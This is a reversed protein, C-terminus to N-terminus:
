FIYIIYSFENDFNHVNGFNDMGIINRVFEKDNIKKDKNKIINFYKEKEFLFEDIGFDSEISMYINTFDVFKEKFYFVIINKNGKGGTIIVNNDNIPFCIHGSLGSINGNCRYNLKNWKIPNNINIFEITNNNEGFFVCLYDGIIAYASNIRDSLLTPYRSLIGKEIEFTECDRTEGGIFILIDNKPTIVIGGNKHNYKLNKILLIMNKSQSYYFLHNYNEGTLVFFGALTNLILSGKQNNKYENIFSTWGKINATNIEFFKKTKIDYTILKEKNDDISYLFSGNRPTNLIEINNEISLINKHKILINDFSKTNQHKILSKQPQDEKFTYDKRFYKYLEKQPSIQTNNNKQVRLINKSSKNKDLVPNNDKRNVKIAKIKFSITKKSNQIKKKLKENEKQLDKIKNLLEKQENFKNIYDNNEQKLKKNNSIINNKEVMLNNKIENSKNSFENIQNELKIINEKNNSNILDIEKKLNNIKVTLNNIKTNLSVNKNNEDSIIKKYIKIDGNNDNIDNNNNDNHEENSNENNKDNNNINMEDNEKKLTNYENLLDNEANKNKNILNNREELDANLKNIEQNLINNKNKTEGLINKDKILIILETKLKFLLLYQEYANMIDKKIQLDDIKSKIENIKIKKDNVDKELNNKNDNYKQIQEEQSNRIKNLEIIKNNDIINQIKYEDVLNMYDNKYQKNKQLEDEYTKNITDFLTNNKTIEENTKESKNKISNYENNLENNAYYSSNLNERLYDIYSKIEKDKKELDYYDTKNLTSNKSKNSYRLNNNNKNNKNMYNITNFINNRSLIENNHQNLLRLSLDDKYSINSYLRRQTQTLNNPNEVEQHYLFHTHKHNKGRFSPYNQVNQDTNLHPFNQPLKKYIKKLM